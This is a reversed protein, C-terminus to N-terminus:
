RGFPRPTTGPGYVVGQHGAWPFGPQPSPTRDSRLPLRQPAVRGVAVLLCLGVLMIAVLLFVMLQLIM